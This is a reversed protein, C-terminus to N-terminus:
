VPSVGGFDLGADFRFVLERKEVELELLVVVGTGGVVVVASVMEFPLRRFVVLFVVPPLRRLTFGFTVVVLLDVVVGVGGTVESGRRVGAGGVM